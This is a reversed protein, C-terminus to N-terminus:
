VKLWLLISVVVLSGLYMVATKDYRTAIRRFQKIRAFFREISNREKYICRDYEIPERRCQRGPIVPIMGHSTCLERIENSDYGRDAILYECKDNLLRPAVCAEHEHGGTLM